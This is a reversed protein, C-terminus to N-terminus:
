EKAAKLKKLEANIYALESNARKVEVKYFADTRNSGDLRKLTQLREIKDANLVEKVTKGESTAKELTTRLYHLDWLENQTDIDYSALDGLSALEAEIETIKNNITQLDMACLSGTSLLLVIALEKFMKM